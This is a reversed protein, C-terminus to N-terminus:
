LIEHASCDPPSCDMLNCIAPCLQTLLCMVDHRSNQIFLVMCHIPKRLPALPLSGVQWHLLYLLHLNTGQTLFIGQFLARYGVRTIKKRSFGMYLPAKCAATWLTASLRVQSFRSLVYVYLPHEQRKQIGEILM